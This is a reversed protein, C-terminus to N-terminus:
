FTIRINLWSHFSGSPMQGRTLVSLDQVVLMECMTEEMKRERKQIVFCQENKLVEISDRGQLTM